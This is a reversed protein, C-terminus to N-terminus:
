DHARGAIACQVNIKQRYRKTEKTIWAVPGEKGLKAGRPKELLKRSKQFKFQRRQKNGENAWIRLEISDM